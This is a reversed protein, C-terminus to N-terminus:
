YTSANSQRGKMSIYLFLAGGGIALWKLASMATDLKDAKEAAAIQESTLQDGIRALMM